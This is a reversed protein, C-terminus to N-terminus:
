QSIDILETEVQKTILRLPPPLPVELRRPTLSPPLGTGSPEVVVWSGVHTNLDVHVLHFDRSAVVFSSLTILIIM